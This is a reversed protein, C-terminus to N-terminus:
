DLTMVEFHRPDVNDQYDPSTNIIVAGVLVIHRCHFEGKVKTVNEKIQKDIADYCADTIAKEPSDAALIEEIRPALTNELIAQQYDEAKVEAKHSPGNTKFRDLALMLAGCSNTLQNQGPRLMKGLQGDESFGIHPGYFILATGGDPVHHAMATMATLGGFPLGGLGGMVFPGHYVESFETSAVNIDDSCLSTALLTKRAIIDHEEALKAVMKGTFVRGDEANAYTERLTQRWTM